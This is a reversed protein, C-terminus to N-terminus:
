GDIPKAERMFPNEAPVEYGLDITGKDVGDQLYRFGHVSM